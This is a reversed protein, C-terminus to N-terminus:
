NLLEEISLKKESLKKGSEDYKAITLEDDTIFNMLVTSGDDLEKCVFRISGDSSLRVGNGEPKNLAWRGVHISGDRSSVGVGVGHRANEVWDGTYCLSGDKYYYSGKGSRKDNLYNGEYATRSEDTLTRGYGSRNGNSDLEGYYSYMAGEAMILKDPATGGQEAADPAADDTVADVGTESPVVETSEKPTYSFEEADTIDVGEALNRRVNFDKANIRDYLPAEDGIFSEETVAELEAAIIDVLARFEKMQEESLFLVRGEDTSAAATYDTFRKDIEDKVASDYVDPAPYLVVPSSLEPSSFLICLGGSYRRPELSVSQSGDTTNFYEVRLLTHLRSFLLRKYMSDGQYCCIHYRGNDALATDQLLKGDSTRVEWKMPKDKEISYDYSVSESDSGTTIKDKIKIFSDFYSRRVGSLIDGSLATEDEKVCFNYFYKLGMDSGRAYLYYAKIFSM